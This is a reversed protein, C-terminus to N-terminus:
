GHFSITKPSNEIWKTQNQLRSPPNQLHFSAFVFFYMLFSWFLLHFSSFILLFVYPFIFLFSFCLFVYLVIFPSSSFSSFYMLFSSFFLFVYLFIFPSSSFFLFCLFVYPFSSTYITSHSIAVPFRLCVCVWFRRFLARGLKVQVGPDVYCACACHMNAFDAIDRPRFLQAYVTGGHVANPHASKFSRKLVSM